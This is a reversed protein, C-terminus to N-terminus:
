FKSKKVDTGDSILAEIVMRYVSMNPCYYSNNFIQTDDNYFYKLIAGACGASRSVGAECHIIMIDVKAVWRKVFVAIQEAQELTIADANEKDGYRTHIRLEEDNFKLRLIDRVGNEKSIIFDADDGRKDTISIVVSSHRHVYKFYEEARQRSMVMIKM